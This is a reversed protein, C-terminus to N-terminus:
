FLYIFVYTSMAVVLCDTFVVFIFSRVKTLINVYEGFSLGIICINKCWIVITVLINPMQTKKPTICPAGEKKRGRFNGINVGLIIVGDLNLLLIKKSLIQKRWFNVVYIHVSHDLQM